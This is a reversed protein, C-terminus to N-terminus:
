TLGMAPAADAGNSKREVVPFGFVLIDDSPPINQCKPALARVSGPSLLRRLLAGSRKM